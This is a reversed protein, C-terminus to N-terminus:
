RKKLRYGIGPVNEVNEMRGLMVWLVDVFKKSKTRYGSAKAQRALERAPLPRQSKALLETLVVRLPKEPRGGGRKAPAKRSPVVSKKSAGKGTAPKAVLGKTENATQALVYGPQGHAHQFIGKDVLERVRTQILRPINQSTTPFKRRVVEETLQKVTLAGNSNDVLRELLGSLTHPGIAKARQTASTPQPPSKKTTEAPAPKKGQNVSDIEADLRRLQGELEDKRTKLDALRSQRAEFDRQLAELESQQRAIRQALSELPVATATTM